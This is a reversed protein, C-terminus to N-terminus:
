GNGESLVTTTTESIRERVFTEASLLSTFRREEEVLQISRDDLADREFPTPAEVTPDIWLVARGRYIVVRETDDFAVFFGERAWNAFVTLSLILLALVALGVFVRKPQLVRTVRGGLRTGFALVDERVGWQAEESDVAHRVVTDDDTTAAGNGADFGSSSATGLARVRRNGLSTAADNFSSELDRMSPRLSPEHALATRLEAGVQMLAPELGDPMAIVGAMRDRFSPVRGTILHIMTAALSYVDAPPGVHEDGDLEEPSAYALTLASTQTRRGTERVLAAIGFDCVKVQGFTGIVLNHPKVDRHVIGLEHAAALAASAHQGVLVIEEAALAGVELREMLSGGPAYELVLCPGAPGDIIEEVSIVNPHGKLRLLAQLERDARHLAPSGHDLDRLEKIAVDGGTSIRVARYVRGLGGEGILVADRYGPFERM